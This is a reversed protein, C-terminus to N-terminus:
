RPGPPRPKRRDVLREIRAVVPELEGVRLLRMGLVTVPAAVLLAIGLTAWARGFAPWGALVGGLLAVAGWALLGGAIAAVATRWTTALVERTPMRGLRRRLLVQGLAAGAVFSASNAATLGLVVDQPALLVPCLLLLPIKVAVTVLQILTPTRSDTLAYFVRMQLMTVGYPLLGFASVALATGLQAAGDLNASRLGFLATGVQPGFVTLLVSVPVLLVALLRSGLSLDAVVDAHRGEAAARSMRPMLATLLSVGLVGYPVQLLLWTNAYIAIAGGDSAAAVRTTAIYGAQGILVYAIVWLALGGAQTLRPDWGWLPRFHVGTRRVAPLLVAAQVVIGLTTGVGLVLLKPEGMRAPDLSIEGPVLAYVALVALVVVNNLVPAWAFAAFAGRSNLIAGLLAGIGYFFVQPLLLYAFATALDPNATATTQGGLYLRTLLPAALMSAATALLLAAATMTILRRTYAAGGDADETQSRVLLPIMVSTLVGGLLLEYVILPLTNAVTYSSNVVGLGLVTVLAIQRLFGTIRSVLSAVAITGSSRGLSPQAPGAVPVPATFQETRGDDSAPGTVPEPGATSAAGTAPAPRRPPPAAHAVPLRDTTAQPLPFPDGVQGVPSPDPVPSPSPHVPDPATPPARDPPTPTPAVLGPSGPLPPSEPPGPPAPPRHGPEARRDPEGRVRRLVRRAALVVLLVGASGTLWLTITGYATSRVRLRSPPGLLEGDPTLVAAQVTFQGSRTVEASVRVQRRGLPPVDQAEIPAVRLGSSPTIEVRVRVTFPLGNSVTILIPANSTGLSYPGPPELVRVAGRLESIRDGAAQAARTAAEPRGRWAVSAPRVLGSRLPGFVEDPAVGLGSDPVAASELDTIDRAAARVTDIVTAPVERVGDGIPYVTPQAAVGARPGEALVAGLPEPTLARSELLEDVVDLLARAGM